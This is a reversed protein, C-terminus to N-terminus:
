RSDELGALAELMATVVDSLHASIAEPAAKEAVQAVTRVSVARVEAASSPVGTSLLLPLAAAVCEAADASPTAASDCLRVTVSVLARSLSQAATRVTANIDDLVRFNM